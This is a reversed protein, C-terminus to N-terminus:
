GQILRAFEQLEGENLDSVAWFTMQSSTWELLHFGQHTAGKFPTAERASAPWIFLNIFHKRRQYLIAAVPRNHIYDLRGGLLPFGRDSLDKVPPAFDLKGDFWPKVTHTDSSAVDIRHSPLMQSRIHSAVLERTLFADEFDPRSLGVLAWGALVLAVTAALGLLPGIRAFRHRDPKQAAHLSSRVGKSLAAPARFSLGASRIASRMALVEAHTQACAPCMRLHEEIELCDALGLELDIHAHLLTQTAQCNL